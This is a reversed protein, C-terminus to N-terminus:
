GVLQAPPLDYIGFGEDTECQWSRGPHEGPSFWTRTKLAGAPQEVIGQVLVQDEKLVALIRLDKIGLKTADQVFARWSPLRRIAAFSRFLAAIRASSRRVQEPTLGTAQVTARLSWHEVLRLRAAELSAQGLRTLGAFEKFASPTM